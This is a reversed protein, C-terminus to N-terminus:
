RLTQRNHDFSQRSQAFMDFDAEEARNGPNTKGNNQIDVFIVFLYM